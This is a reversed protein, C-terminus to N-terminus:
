DILGFGLRLAGQLHQVLARVAQPVFPTYARLAVLQEAFAGVPRWQPLVQVLEGTRLAAQASFDPVLAIGLDALAADRLAESNTAAFNGSVPVTVREGAEPGRRPVLTWAPSEQRRPYHLCNHHALEAPHRPTGQDSLYRPSAVLVSYTACLPWAIHTDPPSATHRIALDYGEQALPVLRDSLDLQLRVQPYQRCFSAFHPVLQQRALAVPATVRLLGHPLGATDRVQAWTQAIHEFSGQTDDVLRQGAETLRLSRTTRAVLPLGAWRELDSVRQSVAAKSVGLRAAAATFSGQEALVTLWHLATWLGQGPPDTSLTPTTM